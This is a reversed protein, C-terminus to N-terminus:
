SQQQVFIWHATEWHGNAYAYRFAYNDQAGVDIDPKYALLTKALPLHGYECATRFAKEKNASLQITPHADLFAMLPPLEGKECLAFLQLLTKSSQKSSSTKTPANNPSSVFVFDFFHM